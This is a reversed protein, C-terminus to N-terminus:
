MGVVDVLTVGPKEAEWFDDADDGDWVLKVDDLEPSSANAIPLRKTEREPEELTLDSPWTTESPRDKSNKPSATPSIPENASLAILLRRYGEARKSDGVAEAARAAYSLAETHDPQSALIIVCHNLAEEMRGSDSLLSVLHLRLAINEPDKEIASLLVAIVTPDTPMSVGDLFNIGSSLPILHLGEIDEDEYIGSNQSSFYGMVLFDSM